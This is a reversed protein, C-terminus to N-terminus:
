CHCLIVLLRISGQSPHVRRRSAIRQASSFEDRINVDAGADVLEKVLRNAILSCNCGSTILKISVILLCNYGSTILKILVILSCNCGSTILKILVVFRLNGNIVAVHLATWGLPHRVNVEVSSDILRVFLIILVAVQGSLM